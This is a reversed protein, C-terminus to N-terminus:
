NVASQYVLCAQELQGLDCCREKITCEYSTLLSEDKTLLEHLRTATNEINIRDKTIAQYQNQLLRRYSMDPECNIDFALLAASPVPIMNNFNIAGLRGGDIKRFDRGNKMRMHKDKPSTFPAFYDFGNISIVIGVYPRREHKNDSVRYDYNKLYAIYDDSIHYFRM